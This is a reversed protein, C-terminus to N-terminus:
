SAGQPRRRRSAPLWSDDEPPPVELEISIPTAYEIAVKRIAADSAYGARVKLPPGGDEPVVYGTGPLDRTIRHCLAGSDLAVDGLVMSTESVDKLRLGVMQTFLGRSPIVEKRPDQLCAVVMFGCARGQSCLLNIATESRRQLERDSSYATLVALEDIMVVHLPDSQRAVHSRLRGAYSRNRLQMQAVLRELSVVAAAADTATTTFLDAGMLIEMGGKLDIGHLQVRGDRVAPALGFAISWFVSGKGAGSSGAILTHPGIPLLWPTGRETRGVEVSSLGEDVGGSAAPFANRLEDGLTFTLLLDRIGVSEIRLRGAGMALRLAEAADEYTRATQGVLPRLVLRVYPWSSRASRIRPTEEGALRCQEAVLPWARVIRWRWWIRLLPSTSRGFSVPRVLAWTRASAATALLLGLVLLTWPLLLWVLAVAVMSWGPEARLGRALLWVWAGVERLVVM